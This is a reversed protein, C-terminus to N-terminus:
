LQVMKARGIATDSLFPLADSRIKVEARRLDACRGRFEADAVFGLYHATSLGALRKCTFPPCLALSSSFHRFPSFSLL